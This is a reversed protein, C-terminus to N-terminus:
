AGGGETKKLARYRHLWPDIRCIARCDCYDCATAGGKRYPDVAAAGAYIRRGMDRINREVGDLLAIFAARELAEASGKRLSGDGNVRYNFQDSEADKRRPGFKELWSADFRGTHRCAARRAAAPDALAETRSGNSERRGRLGVYFVGAPTLRAAGLVGADPLNRLANLYTILQLEVGHEVLVPDLKRGGSKYDIVVALMGAGDPAPCLDVRDIRGRLALQHGDGLDLTWAPWGGGPEGFAV